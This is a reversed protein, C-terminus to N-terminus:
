QMTSGINSQEVVVEHLAHEYFEILIKDEPKGEAKLEDLMNQIDKILM